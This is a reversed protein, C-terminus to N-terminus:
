LLKKAQKMKEKRNGKRKINTMKKLPLDDGDFVLVVKIKLKM